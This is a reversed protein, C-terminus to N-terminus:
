RFVLIVNSGKFRFVFPGGLGNLKLGKFGIVYLGVFDLARLCGLSPVYSARCM